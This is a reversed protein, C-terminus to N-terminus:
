FVCGEASAWKETERKIQRELSAPLDCCEGHKTGSRRRGSSCSIKSDVTSDKSPSFQRPESITEAKHLLLVVTNKKQRCNKERGLIVVLYLLKIKINFISSKIWRKINGKGPQKHATMWLRCWLHTLTQLDQSIHISHLLHFSTWLSTCKRKLKLPQITFM